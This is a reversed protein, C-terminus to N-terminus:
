PVSGVAGSSNGNPSRAGRGYREVLTRRTIWVQRLETRHGKMLRQRGDPHYRALLFREWWGLWWRTVAPFPRHEFGAKEAEAWFLSAGCVADIGRYEPRAELDNALAPLLRFVERRFRFGGRGETHLSAARQNDMHLEGVLDGAEVVTGDRLVVRAGHHRILGLRFIYGGEGIPRIRYKREFWRELGDLWDM